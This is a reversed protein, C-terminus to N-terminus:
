CGAEVRPQQERRLEVEEKGPTTGIVEAKADETVAGPTVRGGIDRYDHTARGGVDRYADRSDYRGWEHPQACRGDTSALCILKVVIRFGCMTSLDHHHFNDSHKLVMQSLSTKCPSVMLPYKWVSGFM